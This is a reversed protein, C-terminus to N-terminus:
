LMHSNDTPDHANHKLVGCVLERVVVPSIEDNYLLAELYPLWKLTFEKRGKM